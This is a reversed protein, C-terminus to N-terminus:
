INCSNKKVCRVSVRGNKVCYVRRSEAGNETYRKAVQVVKVYGCMYANQINVDSDKM